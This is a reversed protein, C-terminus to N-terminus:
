SGGRETLVTREVICYLPGIPAETGDPGMDNGLPPHHYFSGPVVSYGQAGWTNLSDETARVRLYQYTESM